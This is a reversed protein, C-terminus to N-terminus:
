DPKQSYSDAVLLIVENDPAYSIVEEVSNFYPTQGGGTTVARDAILQELRTLKKMQKVFAFLNEVFLSVRM